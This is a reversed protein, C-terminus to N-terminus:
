SRATAARRGEKAGVAALACLRAETRSVVWRRLSVVREAEFDRRIAEALLVRLETESAVEAAARGGALEAAIAEALAGPETGEGAARSLYERGVAAASRRHDLLATLRAPLPPTRIEVLARWPRLGAFAVAAGAGLAGILFGRRDLRGASL